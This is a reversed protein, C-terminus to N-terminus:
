GVADVRAWCKVVCGAVPARPAAMVAHSPQCFCRHSMLGDCGEGKGKSSVVTVQNIAETHVSRPV